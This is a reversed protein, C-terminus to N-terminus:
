VYADEEQNAQIEIEGKEEMERVIATINRQEEEVVKLKVKGMFEMEEELNQRANASLNGTIKDTVAQPTGRLAVALKEAPVQRLVLQLNADTIKVLDEFTFMMDRLTEAKEESVERIAELLEQEKSREMHQFMEAVSKLGSKREREADPTAHMVAVVKDQLAQEIQHIITSDTGQTQCALRTVVQKCLEPEFINIIDAMKDSPLHSLITATVTPQEKALINAIDEADADLLSSFPPRDNYSMIESAKADGVAELLLAKAVDEGGRMSNTSDIHAAFEEFIGQQMEETIEGLTRLEATIAQVAELSLSRLLRASRERDLCAILTAVKRRGASSWNATRRQPSPSPATTANEQAQKNM